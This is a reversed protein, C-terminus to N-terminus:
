SKTICATLGQRAEESYGLVKCSWYDGRHQIWLTAAVKMLNGEVKSAYLLTDWQQRIFNTVRRSMGRDFIMISYRTVLRSMVIKVKRYLPYITGFASSLDCCKQIM